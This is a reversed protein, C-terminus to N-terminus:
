DQAAAELLVCYGGIYRGEEKRIKIPSFQANRFMYQTALRDVYGLSHAFRGTDQLLFDGSGQLVEISFAFLGHDILARRAGEFVQQLNGIYVFVDAAIVIDYVPSADRLFDTIDAECLADYVNKKRAESLMRASLDVGTLKVPLDRFHEGILGTGCGLDLVTLVGPHLDAYSTALNRIESPVSYELEGVLRTEYEGAAEDFLGKVYERPASDVGDGGHLAAVLHKALPQDPNLSLVHEFCDLAGERSGLQKLAMGLNCLASQYDPRFELAKRYADVAAGVRGTQHLLTGVNFLAEPFDPTISVAKRFLELAKDPSGCINAINGLNNYAESFGPDSRIARRYLAEAKDLRGARQYLLGLNNLAESCEPSLALINEYVRAATQLDRQQLHAHAAHLAEDVTNRRKPRRAKDRTRFRASRKRKM